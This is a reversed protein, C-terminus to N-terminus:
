FKNVPLILWLRPVFRLPRDLRLDMRWEGELNIKLRGSVDLQYGTQLFTNWFNSNGRDELAFSQGSLTIKTNTTSLHNWQMGSGLYANGFFVRAGARQELGSFVSRAHGTLSGAVSLPMHGQGKVYAANWFVQWDPAVWYGLGGQLSTNTHYSYDLEVEVDPHEVILDQLQNIFADEDVMEEHQDMWQGADPVTLPAVEFTFGTNKLMSILNITLVNSMCGGGGNDVTFIEYSGESLNGIEILPGSVGSAYLESNLLVDLPPIADASVQIV